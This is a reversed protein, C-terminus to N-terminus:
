EVQYKQQRELIRLLTEVQANPTAFHMDFTRRAQRRMMCVREEPLTRLTFIPPSLEFRTELDVFLHSANHLSLVKRPHSALAGLFASSWKTRCRTANDSELLYCGQQLESPRLIAFTLPM